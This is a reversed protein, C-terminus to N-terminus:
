PCWQEGCYLYCRLLEDLSLYNLEENRGIYKELIDKPVLATDNLNLTIMKWSSITLPLGQLIHSAEQASFFDREAAFTFLM